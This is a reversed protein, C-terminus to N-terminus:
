LSIMYVDILIVLIIIMQLYKQLSYLINKALRSSCERIATYQWFSCSPCSALRMGSLGMCTATSISASCRLSSSNMILHTKTKVVFLGNLFM